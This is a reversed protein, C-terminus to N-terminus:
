EAYAYWDWAWTCWKHDENVEEVRVVTETCDQFATEYDDYGKEPYARGYCNNWLDMYYSNDNWFDKFTEYNDEFVSVYLEKSYPIFANTDEKAKSKAEGESYGSNLYMQYRNDHYIQINGRTEHAHLPVSFRYGWEHNNGIIRAKQKSIRETMLFNWTFHRCADQGGGDSGEPYAASAIDLAERSAMFATTFDTLGIGETKDLVYEIYTSSGFDNYYPIEAYPQVPHLAMWDAQIEETSPYLSKYYEANANFSEMAYEQLEELSCTSLNIPTAQKESFLEASASACMSMVLGTTCIAAVLKKIVM